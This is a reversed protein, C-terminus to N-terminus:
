SVMCIEDAIPGLIESEAGRWQPVEVIRSQAHDAGVLAENQQKSESDESADVVFILANLDDRLRRAESSAESRFM